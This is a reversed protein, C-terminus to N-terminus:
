PVSLIIAGPPPYLNIKINEEATAHVQYENPLLLVNASHDFSAAVAFPGADVIVLGRPRDPLSLERDYIPSNM